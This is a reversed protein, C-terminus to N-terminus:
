KEPMFQMVYDVPVRVKILNKEHIKQAVHKVAKDLAKLFEAQEPTLPEKDKICM